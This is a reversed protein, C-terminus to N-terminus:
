EPSLGEYKVSGSDLEMWKELISESPLWGITKGSIPRASSGIIKGTNLDIWIGKGSPIRQLVGKETLRLSLIERFFPIVVSLSEGPEHGSEKEEMWCWPSNQERHTEFLRRIAKRRRELDKQGSVLLAPVTYTEPVPEPFYIGGKISAFGIMGAPNYCSYGYAFQGGASHGAILFPLDERIWRPFKEAMRRVATDLAKGSGYGAAAYHISKEEKPRSKFTCALLLGGTSRALDTWGPHDILRDGPKDFGPLLVLLYRAPKDAEPKVTFSATSFNDHEGPEVVETYRVPNGTDM